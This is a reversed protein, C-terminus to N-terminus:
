VGAPQPQLLHYEGPRGAPRLHIGADGLDALQGSLWARSRGIQDVYPMFDKPGVITRAEGRFHELLAHVTGLAQETSVDDRVPAGAPQKFMLVATVPPIERDPDVDPIPSGDDDPEGIAIEREIAAALAQATDDM